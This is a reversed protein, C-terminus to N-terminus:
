RRSRRASLFGFVLAAAVVLIALAPAFAGPNQQIALGVLGPIIASGLSSAGAQFGVVQDAAEPSTREATTLVLLPYVPACALGFGVVAVVAAAPTPVNVLV